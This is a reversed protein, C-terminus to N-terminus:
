RSFVRELCTTLAELRESYTTRPDDRYATRGGLLLVKFPVAEVRHKRFLVKRRDLVAARTWGYKELFTRLEDEPGAFVGTVAVPWGGREVVLRAEFLDDFCTPCGTAFFVLLVPTGADPVAEDLSRFIRVAPRAGRSTQRGPGAALGCAGAALIRLVARRKM